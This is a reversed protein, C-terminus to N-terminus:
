LWAALKPGYIAKTSLCVHEHVLGLFNLKAYVHVCWDMLQQFHQKVM